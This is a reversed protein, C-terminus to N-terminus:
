MGLWFLDEESLYEHTVDKCYSVFGGTREPIEEARTWPRDYEIMEAQHGELEDLLRLNSTVSVKENVLVLGDGVPYFAEAVEEQTEPIEIDEFGDFVDKADMPEELLKFYDLWVKRDSGILDQCEDKLMWWHDWLKARYEFWKIYTQNRPDETARKNTAADLKGQWARYLWGMWGYEQFFRSIRRNAENIMVMTKAMPEQVSIVDNLLMEMDLGPDVGILPDEYLVEIPDKEKYERMLDELTLQGAAEEDMEDLEGSEVLHNLVTSM